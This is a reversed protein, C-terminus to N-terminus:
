KLYDEIYADFRRVDDIYEIMNKITNCIIQNKILHYMFKHLKIVEIESLSKRFALSSDFDIKTLNVYKICHETAYMLIRDNLDNENLYEQVYQKHFSRLSTLEIHGYHVKIWNTIFNSYNENTIGINAKICMDMLFHYTISNKFNNIFESLVEELTILVKTDREANAYPLEVFNLENYYDQIELKIEETDNYCTDTKGNYHYVKCGYYYVNSWM